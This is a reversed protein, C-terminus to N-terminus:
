RKISLRRPSFRPSPPASKRGSRDKRRPRRPRRARANKEWGGRRRRRRRRARARVSGRRRRGRDVGSEHARLHAFVGDVRRADVAGRASRAVRGADREERGPARGRPVESRADRRAQTAERARAGRTSPTGGRQPVVGRRRRALAREVLRVERRRPRGLRRAVGVGRRGRPRPTAPPEGRAVDRRRRRRLHDRRRAHEDRQSAAVLPAGSADRRRRPQRRRRRRWWWLSGDVAHEIRVADLVHRRVDRARADGDGDGARPTEIEFVGRELSADVVRAVSARPERVDGGRRRRRRALEARVSERQTADRVSAADAAVRGGVRHRSGRRSIRVGHSRGRVDRRPLRRGIEPRRPRGRVRRRALDVRDGGGRVRVRVRARDPARAARRLATERSQGRRRRRRRRELRRRRAIARPLHALVAARSAVAAATEGVDRGLARSLPARVSAHDALSPVAAAVAVCLEAHADKVSADSSAWLADEVRKVGESWASADIKKGNPWRAAEAALGPLTATLSRLTLAHTQADRAALLAPLHRLTREAFSVSARADCRAVHSLATLAVFRPEGHVRPLLADLQAVLSADNELLWRPNKRAIRECAAVFADQPGLDYLKKLRRRLRKKWEPEADADADADVPPGEADVDMERERSKAGQALAVGLLSAAAAHLPKGSSTGPEMLCTTVGVCVRRADCEPLVCGPSDEEGAHRVAVFEGGLDLTGVLALAGFMQVGCSRMARGEESRALTDDVAVLKVIASLTPALASAAVADLATPADEGRKRAKDLAADMTRRALKVALAINQKLVFPARSPSSSVVHSTLEVLADDDEQTMTSARACELTAVATERLTAHLFACGVRRSVDVVGRMLAPLLVAGHTELLTKPPAAAPGDDDDDIADAGGGGSRTSTARQSVDIEFFDGQAKALELKEKEIESSSKEALVELEPDEENGAAAAEEAAAEEAAREAAAKAAAYAEAAAIESRHLRLISKAVLLRAFPTVDGDTVLNAARRAVGGVDDVAGRSAHELAAFISKCVPHSELDDLDEDGGDGGGGGDATSADEVASADGGASPAPAAAAPPPALTADSAALTASLTFPM